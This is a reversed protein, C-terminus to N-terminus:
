RLVGSRKNVRKGPSTQLPLRREGVDRVHQQSGRLVLLLASGQSCQAVRQSGALHSHSQPQANM